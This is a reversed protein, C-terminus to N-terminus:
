GDIAKRQKRQRYLGVGAIIIAVVGAAALLGLVQSQTLVPMAATDDQRNVMSEVQDAELVEPADAEPPDSLGEAKLAAQYDAEQKAKHYEALEEAPPESSPVIEGAGNLEHWGHRSCVLKGCVEKVPKECIPLLTM